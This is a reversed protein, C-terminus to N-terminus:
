TNGREVAVKTLIKQPITLRKNLDNEVVFGSHVATEMPYRMLSNGWAGGM